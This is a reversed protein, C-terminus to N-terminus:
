MEEAKIAIMDWYEALEMHFIKVILINLGLTQEKNPKVHRIMELSDEITLRWLIALQQVSEIKAGNALAELVFSWLSGRDNMNLKWVKKAFISEFYKPEADLVLPNTSILNGDEHLYYYWERANKIDDKMKM